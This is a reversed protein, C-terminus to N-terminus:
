AGIDPYHHRTLSDLQAGSRSVRTLTLSLPITDSDSKASTTNKPTSDKRHVDVTSYLIRAAKVKLEEEM